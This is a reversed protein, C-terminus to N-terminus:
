TLSFSRGTIEVPEIRIIVDKPEPAWAWLPARQAKALEEVNEIRAATGKIVVSWQFPRDFGDTEFAILGNRELSALKTGEATRILIGSESALFNVPFIDPQGGRSVALRGVSRSRLKSWAEAPELVLMPRAHNTM